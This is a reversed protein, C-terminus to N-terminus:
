SPAGRQRGAAGAGAAGRQDGTLGPQQNLPNLTAWGAHLRM